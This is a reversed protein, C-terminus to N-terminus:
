TGLVAMPTLPIGGLRWAVAAMGSQVGKYYGAYRGLTAMDDSYQGMLWYSWVQCIADNFGFFTFLLFKLFWGGDQFDITRRKAGFDIDFSSQVWLAAGWMLVCLVTLVLISQLAKPKKPGARDLYKGILYAGLMQSGWYFASNFGQTRKNFMANNFFFHYNYFWNSYAFLPFLLLMKPDLFLKFVELIESLGNPLADITVMSGDNRVVNEPKALTLSLLAGCSMLVLFLIFTTNSATNGTTKYNTGFTLFGGLCAGLNFIIWFYSFYAGKTETTPYSMCIQGQATWLLGAGIGLLANGAYFFNTAGSSYAKATEDFNNGMILLSTAYIVYGWTGIFLTYKPGLVNVIGGAFLGFLAFCAYLVATANYNITEDDVGAAISSIANYLGPCTFCVFAVILVQS